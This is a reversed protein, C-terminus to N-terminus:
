SGDSERSPQHSLSLPFVLSSPQQGMHPPGRASSTCLDAAQSESMSFRKRQTEKNKELNLNSSRKRLKGVESGLIELQNNILEHNISVWHEMQAIGVLPWFEGM